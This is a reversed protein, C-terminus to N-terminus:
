KESWDGRLLSFSLPHTLSLNFNRSTPSVPGWVRFVRRTCLTGVHSWARAHLCAPKVACLADTPPNYPSRLLSMRHLKIGRAFSRHSVPPPPPPLPPPPPPPLSSPRPAVATQRWWRIRRRPDSMRVSLRADLRVLIFLARPAEGRWITTECVRLVSTTQRGQRHCTGGTSEHPINRSANSVDSYSGRGSLATM